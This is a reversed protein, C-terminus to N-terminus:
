CNTLHYNTGHLALNRKADDSKLENEYFPPNSFIVDYQQNFIFNRVDNHFLNIRDKWPSDAINEKLQEFADDEIEITDIKLDNKQSVMLSLLGTGTGIDLATSFESGTNKIQNAVWAGFLCADTTVKMACRDQHIIFQRFQFYTNAMTRPHQSNSTRPNDSFM